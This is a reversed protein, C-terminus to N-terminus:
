PWCDTEVDPSLENTGPLVSEFVGSASVDLIPCFRLRSSSEAVSSVVCFSSSGELWVIYMSTTPPRVNRTLQSDNFLSPGSLKKVVNKRLRLDVRRICM